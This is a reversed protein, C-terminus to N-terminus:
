GGLRHLIRAACRRLPTELKRPDAKAHAPVLMSIAVSAHLPTGPFGCGVAADAVGELSESVATSLGEKGITAISKHLKTRGAPSLKQWGADEELVWALQEEPLASLLLRGSVTSIASFRRGVEVVLRVPHPSEHRHIVVLENGELIGLHCSQGTEESLAKMEPAAARVLERVPEISQVLSLLKLSIRYSGSGDRRLYGREELCSLMRFIENNNRGVARALATLTLPETNSALVELLDLGKELAPVRYPQASVEGDRRM